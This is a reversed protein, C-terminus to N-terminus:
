LYHDPTVLGSVLAEGLGYSADIAIVGRRGTVPDATFLVGAVDPFVMRQVVVCLAVARHAFHNRARYVVARDTFLSAWCARVAGRLAEPGRVNLYSEQQGAFSAHPLDEATASSRVAYAVGSGVQEWAALVAQEVAAPIPLRLLEERFAGAARRLAEVDDPRCAE